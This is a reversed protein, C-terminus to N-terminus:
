LCRRPAGTGGSPPTMREPTRQTTQIGGAGVSAVLATLVVAYALLFLAAVALM